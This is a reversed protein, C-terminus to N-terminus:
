AWPRTRMGGSPGFVPPAFSDEVAAGWAQPMAWMAADAARCLKYLEEFRGAYYQLSRQPNSPGSRPDLFFPYIDTTVVLPKNIALDAKAAPVNNHAVTPAHNPDLERVLRYYKSLDAATDATVEETLSWMLLAPNDRVKAALTRLSPVLENEYGARRQAEPQYTFYFLAGWSTGQYIVRVGAREAPPLLQELAAPWFNSGYICNMHHATMDDLMFDWHPCGPGWYFGRPFFERPDKIM